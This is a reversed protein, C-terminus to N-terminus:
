YPQESNSDGGSGWAANEQWPKIEARGELLHFPVAYAKKNSPSIFPSFFTFPLLMM